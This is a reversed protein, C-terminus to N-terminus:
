DCLELKRLLTDSFPSLKHRLRWTEAFCYTDIMLRHYVISYQSFTGDNCILKRARDELLKRGVKEYKSGIKGGIFSGGM